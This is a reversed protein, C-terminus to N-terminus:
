FKVRASLQLQRPARASVPQGFLPSGLTGVFTGYNVRNLVNFADLALTVTRADKGGGMKAERSLRLDLQASSASELTNRAVDIPRARGRGNNYVDAGLTETYPGASTLTLGVGLNVFHGPNVSGLLLFRDPRDFDARAWEGALDYDNAPYSNIGNTDNYARSWTYQATGNFWRGVRGRLTVQLSKTSQRGDSEIERVASYASNPRTAYLPPPPANIDRSRFLHYGRAGTYTISLTLSKRLQHDLGISYQVTQPIQVGPALQVISPAQSVADSGAQFPDPYSPNSIVYRILGGPRFQLLDAIARAGSRDNFIGLGGRIVDTKRNGPAYAVSGRPAFNNTDHFYNQWDYRVGFSASFGPWAQWDDKIYTGVQKELFTVDGNGQQQIFSYPRGTAYTDLGSFYYTGNFNTRDFFGRRSWDPLQFGTQVQHHGKIWVLSETLQTHVETLVLDGQGGSTFAGAVVIGRASSASLTPEREHGFLVQFQNLLSPRLTTQQTYTVQQEHHTFTTGASALTTGGVGRNENKEYEYSPRVSITTKDSWQHNISMSVLAQANLQPAIEHIPGAPGIAFVEAQQDDANDNASLVFSTKGGHGVPGGFVGEVIRKQEPPTTSAFANRADLRADRFIINGEGEYEQGGPKTLIEIRGRGPRAYEASYPDQNIKIQQVASASVRLASVEMGNVVITPGGSGVSGSDLFRSITAIYDQDFVPLGELAGQDVAVADLNNSSTAGAESGGNSVNVEQTLNTLSLVLKQAGPSRTGVRVRTSGQKFGEFAARLEYQGAAVKEFRFQGKGDAMTSEVVIGANTVLDVSAGPLVAGTQDLVVGTVAVPQAATQGAAGRSILLLVVCACMWRTSM